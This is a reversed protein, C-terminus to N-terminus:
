LGPLSAVVNPAPAAASTGSGTRPLGLTMVWWPWQRADSHCALSIERMRPDMLNACHKDSVAWDAVAQTPQMWGNALNEAVRIFPYGAAHARTALNEGGVGRHTLEGQEAMARAQALAMGNLREGWVLAPAPAYHGSAGCSLGQQRLQNVQALVQERWQPQNLSRCADPQAQAAAAAALSLLLVLNQLRTHM